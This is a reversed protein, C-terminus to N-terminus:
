TNFGMAATNHFSFSFGKRGREPIEAFLCAEHGRDCVFVQILKCSNKDANEGNSWIDEKARTNSHDQKYDAIVQHNIVGTFTIL